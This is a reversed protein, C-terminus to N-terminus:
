LAESASRGLRKMEIDRGLAREGVSRSKLVEM